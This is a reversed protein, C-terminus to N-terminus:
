NWTVTYLHIALRNDKDRIPIWGSLSCPPSISATTDSSFDIKYEEIFVYDKNFKVPFYISCVHPTPSDDPQEEKVIYKIFKKGEPDAYLPVKDSIIFIDLEPDVSHKKKCNSYIVVKDDEKGNYFKEDKSFIRLKIWVRIDLYPDIIIQVYEGSRKTIWYKAFGGYGHTGIPITEKFLPGSVPRFGKDTKIYTNLRDEAQKYMDQNGDREMLYVLGIASKLASDAIKGSNYEFSNGYGEAFASTCLLTIFLLLSILFKKLKTM